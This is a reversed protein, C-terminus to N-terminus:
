SVRDEMHVSEPSRAALRADNEVIDAQVWDRWHEWRVQMAAPNHTDVTTRVRASRATQARKWTAFRTRVRVEWLAIMDRVTDRWGDIRHNRM